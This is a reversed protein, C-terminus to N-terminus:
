GGGQPSGKRIYRANEIGFMAYGLDVLACIFLSIGSYFSIAGVYFFFGRVWSELIDPEFSSIDIGGLLEVFHLAPLFIILLVVVWIFRKAVQVVETRKPDELNLGANLTLGGLMAAATVIGLEFAEPRDLLMGSGFTYYLVFPGFFLAWLLFRVTDRNDVLTKSLSLM